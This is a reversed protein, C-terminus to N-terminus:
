IGNRGTYLQAFPQAGLFRNFISSPFVIHRSDFVNNDPLGRVFFSLGALVPGDPLALGAAEIPGVRLLFRAKQEFALYRDRVAFIRHTEARAIKYDKGLIQLASPLDLLGDLFVVAESLL